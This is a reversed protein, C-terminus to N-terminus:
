LTGKSSDTTATTSGISGTSPSRATTSGTSPRRATTSGTSSTKATTSGTSPTGATTSGTSPSRATTSGTSSTKATTSGTSPTSPTTSGTSPTNATSPGTTPTNSSTLFDYTYGFDEAPKFMNMHTYVPIFPVICDNSSHGAFKPENNPGGYKGNPYQQLWQEFISDIMTHHNVFVPDNPSAAVDGM